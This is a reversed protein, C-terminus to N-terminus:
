IARRKQEPVPHREAMKELWKKLFADRKRQDEPAGDRNQYARCQRIRNTKEDFEVTYWPKKANATQRLVLIATSGEMHRKQYGAVCNKQLEGEQVLEM